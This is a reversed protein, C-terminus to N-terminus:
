TIVYTFLVKDIATQRQQFSTPIGARASGIDLLSSERCSKARGRAQLLAYGTCVRTELEAVHTSLNESLGPQM